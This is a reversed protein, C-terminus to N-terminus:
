DRHTPSQGNYAVPIRACTKRGEEVQAEDAKECQVLHRTRAMNTGAGDSM